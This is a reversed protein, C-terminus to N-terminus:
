CYGTDATGYEGGSSDGGSSGSNGTNNNELCDNTERADSIAASAAGLAAGFLVSGINAGLAGGIAGGIAGDIVKGSSPVCETNVVLQLPDNSGILGGAVSKLEVNNLNRM